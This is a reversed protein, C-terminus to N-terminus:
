PGEELAPGIVVAPRTPCTSRSCRSWSACARGPPEGRGEGGGSMEAFTRTGGEPVFIPDYGFGGTAARSTAGRRRRVAARSWTSRGGPLALALPSAFARRRRQAPVDALQALLLEHNARRGQEM